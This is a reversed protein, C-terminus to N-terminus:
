GTTVRMSSRQGGEVIAFAGKDLKEVAVQACCNMRDLPQRWRDDFQDDMRRCRSPGKPRALKESQLIELREGALRVSVRSAVSAKANVPAHTSASRPSTDVMTSSIPPDDSM